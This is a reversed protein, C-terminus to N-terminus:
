AVRPGPGKAADPVAVLRPPDPCGMRGLSALGDPGYIERIRERVERAEQEITARLSEFREEYRARISEDNGDLPERLMQIDGTIAEREAAIESTLREREAAIEDARQDDGAATAANEEEIMRTTLANEEQILDAAIRNEETIMHATAQNTQTIQCASFENGNTILCSLAANEQTILRSEAEVFDILEEGTDAAIYRGGTVEAVERLDAAESGAIDLGVVDVTVEVGSEKLERAAAPDGDCTEKGDSVLIVRNEEGERGAFAEQAAELSRAIPTRGTPEFEELTDGFTQYDVDGLPELLDVGECSAAKDAGNNSGVHGYVMFGLENRDPTATAYYQLAERAAEIKTQGGGASDAMSGSSDLILLTNAGDGLKTFDVDIGPCDLDAICDIAEPDSGIENEVATPILDEDPDEYWAAPLPRDSEAEEPPGEEGSAGIAGAIEEGAEEGGGEDEVGADCGGIAIAFLALLIPFLIKASM